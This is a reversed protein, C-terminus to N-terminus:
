AVMTQEAAVTGLRVIHAAEHGTLARHRHDGVRRVQDVVPAAGVGCALGVLAGGGLVLVPVVVDVVLVRDLEVDLEQAGGQVASEGLVGGDVLAEADHAGLDDPLGPALDPQQGVLHQDPQLAAAHKM